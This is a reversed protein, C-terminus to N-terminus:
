DWRRGGLFFILIFVFSVEGSGPVYESSPRQEEYEDEAESHVRKPQKQYEAKKPIKKKPEAM